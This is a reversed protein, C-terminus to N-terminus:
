ATHGDDRQIAQQLAMTGGHRRPGDKALHTKAIASLELTNEILVLNVGDHVECGFGQDGFGDALGADEIGGVHCAAHIKEVSEGAVANFFENKRGSGGSVAFRFDHGDGFVMALRGDIGVPFGLEYEFLYQLVVLEVGPEFIHGEAIEVGGSGGFRVAFMMAHFSMDNGPNEIGGAAAQGMDIDEARIVWRRVTGADAIVYVHEIDGIGVNACQLFNVPNGAFGEVDAVAAAERDEFDDLGGLADGAALDGSFQTWTTGAIGSNENGALFFKLTGEAPFSGM